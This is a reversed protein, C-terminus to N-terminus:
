QPTCPERFPYYKKVSEKFENIYAQLMFPLEECPQEEEAKQWAYIFVFHRLREMDISELFHITSLLMLDKEHDTLHSFTHTRCNGGAQANPATTAEKM